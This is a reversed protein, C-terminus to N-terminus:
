ALHRRPSGLQITRQDPRLLPIVSQHLLNCQRGKTARKCARDQRRLDGPRQDGLLRFLGDRDILLKVQEAVDKFADARLIHFLNVGFLQDFRRDVAHECRKVRVGAIQRGLVEVLHLFLGATFEAPKANLHRLFVAKHLNYGRHIARGSVLSADLRAIKDGM